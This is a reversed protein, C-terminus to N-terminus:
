KSESDVKMFFAAPFRDDFSRRKMTSHAVAGLGAVGVAAALFMAHGAALLPGAALLGGITEAKAIKLLDQDIKKWEDRAKAVEDNLEEALLIANAEEFEDTTRASKWVRHLFRRLSELRGEDRLRLAHSPALNNLYTLRAGQVAKAFPAWVKNEASNSQRDLEIEKWRSGFDTFLYSKTLNATLKGGTYSTGTSMIAYQGSGGLEMPELFNPDQGRLDEVYAIFNDVTTGDKGLDYEKFKRKLVENPAGMLLLENSLRESHRRHFEDTTQDLADRLVPENDWKTRQETTVQWNLRADFDMPPRIVSVIGAEIWPRLVLWLNVTRLTQARFEEPNLIPNFKDKVSYPYVFPDILLIKNAYISHRLIASAVYEPSYDGIYLGSVGDGAERRLVDEIDIDRPWINVIAEHIQQVAKATFAGKYAKLSELSDFQLADAISALFYLNRGRVSLFSRYDLKERIITEWDVKGECCHKFKIGRLCPCPENRGVKFSKVM